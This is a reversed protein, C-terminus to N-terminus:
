WSNIWSDFKTIVGIGVWKEQRIVRVEHDSKKLKNNRYLLYIFPFWNKLTPYINKVTPVSVSQQSLDWANPVLNDHIQTTVRTLFLDPQELGLMGKMAVMKAESNGQSRRKLEPKLEAGGYEKRADIAATPAWLVDIELALM